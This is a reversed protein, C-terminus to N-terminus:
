ENAWLLEGQKPKDTLYATLVFADVWTEKVVVCLCKAGVTTNELNRYYLWATDDNRSRVVREPSQLTEEIAQM